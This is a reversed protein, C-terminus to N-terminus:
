NKIIRFLRNLDQLNVHYIGNPLDSINITEQNNVLKNKYVIEGLSNYILVNGIVQGKVSLSIIFKDNMPNPYILVYENNHEELSTATTLTDCVCRISKGNSYDDINRLINSQNYDLYRYYCNLGPTWQPGGCWFSANMGQCCVYGAPWLISGSIDSVPIGSFGTSNTAGANPSLWMITDKLMGGAITSELTNSSSTDSNPDLFHVLHYWDADTAVHWGQPCIKRTDGAAPYNYWYGLALTDITNPPIIPECYRPENLPFFYWNNYGANTIPSGDNFHSVRLNTAMWKQNGITVVPYVNGDYDIITQSKAEVSILLSIALLLKKMQDFNTKM